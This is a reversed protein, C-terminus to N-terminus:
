PLAQPQGYTQFKGTVVEMEQDSLIAPKGISMSQIYIQSVLELEEAVNFAVSLSPGVTVIGHNAMLCANYHGISHVINEALEPTGYTAYAALPVKNGSFGVLYHVAPLEWNLCAITTANVQHTHVVANIDTRTNLLRLHFHVESSPRLAGDVIEGEPNLVVVDEPRMILYDVGTPKIAILNEQRNIISLNGGSGTTLKPSILKRGYFVIQEREEQLLM